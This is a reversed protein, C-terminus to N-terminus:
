ILAPSIALMMQAAYYLPLGAARNVFAPAVFRDRAVFVDSVTFAVAGLWILWPGGAGAVGFALTTMLSIVIMYVRVPGVMTAPLSRGLWRLIGLCFLGLAIGGALLAGRSLPQTLFAGCFALHGLLFAFIGARFAGKNGRPILLLDGLMCLALGALIWRGYLTQLGGSQLGLWIFALSAVPKSLWKGVQSGRREAFLLLAVFVACLALPLAVTLPSMM